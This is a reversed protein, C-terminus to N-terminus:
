ENKWSGDYPKVTWKFNKAEEEVQRQGEERTVGYQEFYIKDVIKKAEEKTRGGLVMVFAEYTNPHIYGLIGAHIM